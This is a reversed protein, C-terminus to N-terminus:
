EASAKRAEDDDAAFASFRLVRSLIFAVVVLGAWLSFLYVMSTSTLSQDPTERPWMLPLIMMVIAFLPLLRAGDRMRRQRYGARELFEIRKPARM